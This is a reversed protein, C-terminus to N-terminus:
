DHRFTTGAKGLLLNDLQLADGIVVKAVGGSLTEFANEIKPFMGGSIKQNALLQKYLQPTIIPVVSKDDSVDRLVGGQKFAYVLEVQYKKSLAIALAAAITDANTNLLQGLTDCTIPAIVPLFQNSLLTYLLDTNIEDIDGVWGYDISPHIRKHARILQGDTGSLGIAMSGRANLAAVMNKNIYGAYVMTVIKLTNSDTIRRGNVIQQEIGMQHALDTALKGGGHILIKKSSISAFQDLFSELMKPDDIIAGGIKILILKEKM